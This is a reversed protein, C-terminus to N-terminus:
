ANTHKSKKTSRALECVAVNLEAMTRQIDELVSFRIHGEESWRRDRLQVGRNYIFDYEMESRRTRRQRKALDSSIKCMIADVALDHAVRACDLADPSEMLKKAFSEKVVQNFRRFIRRHGLLSRIVASAEQKLWVVYPMFIAIREAGHIVGRVLSVEVMFPTPLHETKTILLYLKTM